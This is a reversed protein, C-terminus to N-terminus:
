VDSWVGGVAEEDGHEITINKRVAPFKVGAPGSQSYGWRLMQAIPSAMKMPEWHDLNIPRSLWAKMNAPDIAIMPTDPWAVPIDRSLEFPLPEDCSIQEYPMAVFPFQDHRERATEKLKEASTVTIKTGNVAAKLAEDTPKDPM